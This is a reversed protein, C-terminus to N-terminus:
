NCIIDQLMNDWCHWDTDEYHVPDKVRGAKTTYNWEIEVLNQVSADYVGYFRDYDVDNSREYYIYSGYFDSGNVINMYNVTATNDTAGRTWDIQLYQAPEEPSGYLIWQGETRLINHSGSYWLFDTFVNEKSIYMEWLVQTETLTGHLEAKHSIGGALFNYTWVWENNGEYIGEHNFAEIFSAVPVILNVTLVTNWVVVHSAAWGWNTYVPLEASKTLEGSKSDMFDSFDLVFTELPPLDPADPDNDKECGSFSVACLVLIATFYRLWLKRELKM